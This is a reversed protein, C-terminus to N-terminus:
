AMILDLNFLIENRADASMFSSAEFHAFSLPEVSSKLPIIM